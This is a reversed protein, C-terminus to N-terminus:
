APTDDCGFKAIKVISDRKKSYEKFQEHSANGPMRTTIM